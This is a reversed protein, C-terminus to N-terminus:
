ETELKSAVRHRAGEVKRQALKKEDEPSVLALYTGNYGGETFHKIYVARENPEKLALFAETDQFNDPDISTFKIDGLLGPMSPFDISLTPIKPTTVIEVGNSAAWQKNQASPKLRYYAMEILHRAQSM